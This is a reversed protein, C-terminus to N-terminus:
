QGASVVSRVSVQVSGASRPRAKPTYPATEPTPTTRVWDVDQRQHTNM